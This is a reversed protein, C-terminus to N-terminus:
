EKLLPFANLSIYFVQDRSLDDRDLLELCDDLCRYLKERVLNLKQTSCAVTLGMASRKEIPTKGITDKYKQLVSLQLREQQRRLEIKGLTSVRNKVPKWKGASTKYILGSQVILNWAKKARETSIELREAIENPCPSFSPLRTMEILANFIWSDLQTMQQANAATISSNSGFDITGCGLKTAIQNAIKISPM